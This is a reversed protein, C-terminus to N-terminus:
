TFRKRDSSGTRGDMSTVYYMGPIKKNVYLVDYPPTAELPNKTSGNPVGGFRKEVFWSIRLWKALAASGWAM